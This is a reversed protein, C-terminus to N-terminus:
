RPADPMESDGTRPREKSKREEKDGETKDIQMPQNFDKSSTSFTSVVPTYYAGGNSGEGHEAQTPTKAADITDQMHTNEADVGDGDVWGRWGGKIDRLLRVYEEPVLGSEGTKPDQAVLWGQGHRYSVLIVQGEVLPLENDNERAFDFLAVAKGHFEEAPDTITFEYSRSFRSDDEDDYFGEFPSSSPSSMEIDHHQPRPELHTTNAYSRNPLTAAFHSDRRPSSSRQSNPPYTIYEGGPGNASEDVESVYYTRSRDGNTGAYSGRRAPEQFRNGMRDYDVVNSKHKKHHRHSTVVPSHIDEDESWPPGDGHGEFSTRPLQEGPEWPAASWSGRSNDWAPPPDSLRRNQAESAPTSIDSPNDPLPGYFLPQTPAYAFDRVLTYPLHSHFIPFAM